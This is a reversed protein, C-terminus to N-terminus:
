YGAVVPLADRLGSLQIVRLIPADPQVCLRLAIGRTRSRRLAHVLVRVGHSDLHDVERLDVTLAVPSRDLADTLARDFAAATAVDITGTMVLVASRAAVRPECRLRPSSSM